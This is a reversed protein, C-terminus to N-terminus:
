KWNEELIWNEYPIMHGFAKIAGRATPQYENVLKEKTKLKEENIMDGPIEEGKPYYKGFYYLQSKEKLSEDFIQTVMQSVQQHHYKGYEGKPNHTVVEDWNKYTLLLQIDQEMADRCTSYYDMEYGYKGNKVWEKRVDPYDLIIHADGTKTMVRNFDGSRKKHWGNSMCVVLYNDDILHSGGWLTEDDPHAVIMIKKVNRLDLTDLKKRNLYGTDKSIKMTYETKHKKDASTARIVVYETPRLATVVGDKNISVKTKDNTSYIIKRNSANSPSVKAKLTMKEGVKMEDCATVWHIGQVSQFVIKLKVKATKKTSPNQAAITVQGAKKAKVVGKKSVTAVKKNSSRWRVTKFATNSPVKKLHLRMSEGVIMKRKQPVIILKKLRKIKKKKSNISGIKKYVIKETYTVNHNNPLARLRDDFGAVTSSRSCARLELASVKLKGGEFSLACVLLLIFFVIIRNKRKLM